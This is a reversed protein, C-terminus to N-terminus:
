RRDIFGFLNYIAAVIAGSGAGFALSWCLGEALAGLSTIPQTTFLSIFMHSPGAVTFAGLWCIAFLIAVGLAGTLACRVLSLRTSSRAPYTTSM